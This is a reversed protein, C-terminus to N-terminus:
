NYKLVSVSLSPFEQQEQDLKDKRDLAPGEARGALAMFGILVAAIPNWYSWIVPCLVLAILFSVNTAYKTAKKWDNGMFSSFTSRLIRGGDMPFIPLLNFAAIIVNIELFFYMFDNPYALAIPWWLLGLLVNSAPGAVGIYFEHYPQKHFDGDLHALGAMPWLEIKPVTYGFSIAVFSHCLEHILVVGYCIGIYALLKWGGLLGLMIAYFMFSRRIVIPIPTPITIQPIIKFISGIAKTARSDSGFIALSILWIGALFLFAMTFLLGYM